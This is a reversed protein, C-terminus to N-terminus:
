TGARALDIIILVCAVLISVLASSAVTMIRSQSAEIRTLRQDAELRERGRREDMEDLDRAVIRWRDAENFSQWLEIRSLAMGM